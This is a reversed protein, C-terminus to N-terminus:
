ENSIIADMREYKTSMVLFEGIKMYSKQQENGMARFQKIIRIETGTLTDTNVYDDIGELLYNKTVNLYEAIRDIYKQYSKGERYKWATYTGNSVGIYKELDKATKGQVSLQDEIRLVVPNTTMVNKPIRM